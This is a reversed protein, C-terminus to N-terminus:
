ITRLIRYYNKFGEGYVKTKALYGKAVLTNLALIVTYNNQKQEGMTEVIEKQPVPTKERRAWDNAFRIIKEQLVSVNKTTVYLSM